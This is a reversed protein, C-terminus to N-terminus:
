ILSVSPLEGSLNEQRKSLSTKHLFPLSRATTPSGETPSSIDKNSARSGMKDPAGEDFLTLRQSEKHIAHSAWAEVVPGQVKLKHERSARITQIACTMLEILRTYQGGHEVSGNRFRMMHRIRRLAKLCRSNEAVFPKNMNEKVVAEAARTDGKLAYAEVLINFRHGTSPAGPCGDIEMAIRCFTVAVDFRGRRLCSRAAAEFAVPPLAVKAEKEAWDVIRLFEEVPDVLPSLRDIHALLIAALSPAINLGHEQAKRVLVLADTVKGKDCIIAARVAEKLCLGRSDAEDASKMDRYMDLASHPFGRRISALMARFVVRENGVEVPEVALSLASRQMNLARSSADRVINGFHWTSFHPNISKMKLAVKRLRRYGYGLRRLSLLISTLFIPQNIFGRKGCFTLWAILGQIDRHEVHIRTMLTVLYKDIEVGIEDLFRGLFKQTEPLSHSKAFEKLVPPFARSVLRGLSTQGNPSPQCSEMMQLFLAEVVDWAGRRAHDLAVTGKVRISNTQAANGDKMISESIHRGIDARGAHYAIEMMTKYSKPSQSPPMIGIFLRFFKESAQFDGTRAWHSQLLTAAWQDPMKVLWPVDVLFEAVPGSRLGELDSVASIVRGVIKQYPRGDPYQLYHSLFHDIAELAAGREFMAELFADQLDWFYPQSDCCLSIMRKATEVMGLGVIIPIMKSGVDGLVSEDAPPSHQFAAIFFHVARDMAKRKENDDAGTVTCLSKIHEVLQHEVFGPTTSSSPVNSRLVLSLIHAAHRVRGAEELSRALHIMNELLVTEILNRTTPESLTRMAIDWGQDWNSGDDQSDLLSSATVLVKLTEKVACEHRSPREVDGRIARSLPSKQHRGVLRDMGPFYKPLVNRTHRFIPLPYIAAEHDGPASSSVQNHVDQFLSPDPVLSDHLSAATEVDVNCARIARRIAREHGGERYSPLARLRRGNELISQVANIRRRRDEILVAISCSTGLLLGQLVRVIAKSSLKHPTSM